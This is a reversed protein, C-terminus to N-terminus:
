RPPSARLLLLTEVHHTGPFLDLLTGREIRYSPELAAVDRALTAPDCSVLLLHRPRRRLLEARVRPSMGARPPDAVVLDATGRESRLFAEATSAVARVESLGDRRWRDLNTRLDAFSSPDVEVATARAGAEVLPRTLFGAGAYLDWATKVPGCAAVSTSVEELFSDLLYRNGQFFSSVSVTFTAGGAALTLSSPGLSAVVRGGAVVRAGDAARALRRVLAEADPAPGNARLEVLLPSGDLGELTLLEGAVVSGALADLLGPLRARFPGSVVECTEALSGVDNSGPGYFGLRGLADLHLRNRLRYGRASGRWGLAPVDDVRGIRRLADVVLATKLARHSDLRAAPWDCGGCTRDVARPCVEADDRRDPSRELVDLLRGRLLRKGAEVVHVRVRDGPLAGEVLLVQGDVRALGDGGPVVREVVAELTSGTESRPPAEAGRGGRPVPELGHLPKKM